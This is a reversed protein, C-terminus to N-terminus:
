RSASTANREGPADFSIIRRNPFYRVFPEWMDASCGIGPVLFLPRGSGRESVCVSHGQWRFLERRM